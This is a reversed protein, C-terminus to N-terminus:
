LGCELLFGEGIEVCTSAVQTEVEFTVVVDDGLAGPFPDTPGVTGDPRAVTIIGAGQDRNFVYVIAGGYSADEAYRFQVTGAGLDIDFDMKDPSPPPIPVSPTVCALAAGALLAFLVTLARPPRM